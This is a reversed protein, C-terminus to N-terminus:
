RLFSRFIGLGVGVAQKARLITPTLACFLFDNEILRKKEEHTLDGEPGILILLNQVDKVKTLIHSVESGSPDFFIKPHQWSLFDDVQLLPDLAPFNFYKAQEAASQMIREARAQDYMTLNMRYTKSSVFPVIKSAGLEICTYLADEFAEKKLLPLGITINPRIEKNTRIEEILVEVARKNSEKIRGHVHHTRDFLIVSSDQELRLVTHIRRVIDQQSISIIQENNALTAVGPLYLAFEHKEM